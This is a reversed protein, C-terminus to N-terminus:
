RERIIIKTAGTCGRLLEVFGAVAKPITGPEAAEVMEETVEVIAVMGVLVWEVGVVGLVAVVQMVGGRGEQVTVGETNAGRRANERVRSKIM